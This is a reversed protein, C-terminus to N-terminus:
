DTGFDGHRNAEKIIYKLWNRFLPDKLLGEFRKDTMTDTQIAKLYESFQGDKNMM